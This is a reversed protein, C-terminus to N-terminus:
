HVPCIMGVPVCPPVRPVHVSGVVLGCCYELGYLAACCDGDCVSREFIRPVCGRCRQFPVINRQLCLKWISTMLEPWADACHLRRLSSAPMSASTRKVFVRQRSCWIVYPCIMTAHSLTVATHAACFLFAPQLGLAVCKSITHVTQCWMMAEGTWHSVLRPIGCVSPLANPHRAISSPRMLLFQCSVCFRCRASRPDCRLVALHAFASMKWSMWIAHCSQSWRLSARWRESSLNASSTILVSTPVSCVHPGAPQMSSLSMCISCVGSELIRSLVVCLLRSQSDPTRAHLAFYALSEALRRFGRTTMSEKTRCWVTAWWLWACIGTGLAHM